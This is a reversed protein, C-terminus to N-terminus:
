PHFGSSQASPSRRTLFITFGLWNTWSIAGTWSSDSDVGIAEWENGDVCSCLVAKLRFFYPLGTEVPVM